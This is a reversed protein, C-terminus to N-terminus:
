QEPEQALDVLVAFTLENGQADTGTLRLGMQDVPQLCAADCYSLSSEGKVFSEAGMWEQVLSGPVNIVSHMKGESFLAYTLQDPTFPIDTENQIELPFYWGQGGDFFDDQVLPFPNSEPIMAIFAKGEERVAPAFDEPTLQKEIEQSLPVYLYFARENGNEDVGELALGYGTDGCAPRGINYSYVKHPQLAEDQFFNTAETHGMVYIDGIDGNEDFFVETMRKITFPVGNTEEMTYVVNWIYPFPADEVPTLLVPSQWPSIHLYAQGEINEAPERYWEAPFDPPYLAGDEPEDPVPTEDSLATAEPTPAETVVPAVAPQPEPTLAPILGYVVALTLAVGCLFAAALPWLRRRVPAPAPAPDPAPQQEEEQIQLLAFLQKRTAEDPVVRGNEWHSVTQRSVNMAAAVQEQTMGLARRADAISQNLSPM